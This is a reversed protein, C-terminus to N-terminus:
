CEDTNVEIVMNQYLTKMKEKLINPNDYEFFVIGAKYKMYDEICDGQKGWILRDFVADEYGNHFVIDKLTGNQRAMICERAVCRNDYRCAKLENEFGLGLEAKVIAMPYDIGMAYEVLKIYLDGPARRCPDILYPIGNDTVICQCHFLGDTLDMAQAIKEIDQCIMKKTDTTLDSPSFAGSVLYKNIFYEENDFFAFVIKNNHILVSAGHNSGEIYEEVLIENQRTSKWAELFAGEAEELSQCVCVGKGGTLDVPKILVPFKMNKLVDRLQELNKCSYHFPCRVGNEDMLQRFKNKHHIWEAKKVSDHGHLGLQEATYATSIYAFDNCGSVIGSVHHKRALSCVFERDSFDGPVYLDAKKHGFGEKNNGTSIVFCNLRHLADILPLEAHSGGTILVKKKEGMKEERDTM